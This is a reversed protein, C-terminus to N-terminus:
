SVLTTMVPDDSTTVPEWPTKSFVAGPLQIIIFSARSEVWRGATKASVM